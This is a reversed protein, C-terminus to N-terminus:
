KKLKKKDDGRQDGRDKIQGQGSKSRAGAQGKMKDGAPDAAMVPPHSSRTGHAQAEFGQLSMVGGAAITSLMLASFKQKASVPKSPASAKGKRGPVKATM